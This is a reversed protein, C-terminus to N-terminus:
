PFFFEIILLGNLLSQVSTQCVILTQNQKPADGLNYCKPGSVEKSKVRFNPLQWDLYAM